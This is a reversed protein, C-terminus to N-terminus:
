ERIDFYIAYHKQCGMNFQAQCHPCHTAGMYQKISLTKKCHGCLIAHQDFETKSWREIPHDECANHCQYCPYFKGCCKFQIAIIDVASHYHECRTEDDVLLGYVQMM